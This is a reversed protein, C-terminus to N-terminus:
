HSRNYLLAGASRATTEDCTPVSSLHPCITRLRELTINGPVRTHAVCVAGAPTWGAEFSFSADNRTDSTQIGLDDWIDIPMGTRTWGHGNGCYDARVMRACADYYDRMSRGDSKTEWPHYGFRVCKGLAGGACILEFDGPGGPVLRNDATTRGALPFGTRQGDPAPECLPEGTDVIRFDHLFVSGTKDSPDPYFAAIRVKLPVGNKSFSLVRGVLDRGEKVSGDSLAARFVTGVAEIRVPRPEDASAGNAGICFVLVFALLLSRGM